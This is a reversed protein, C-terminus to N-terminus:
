ITNQTAIMNSLAAIQRLFALSTSRNRPSLKESAPQHNEPAKQAERNRLEAWCRAGGGTSRPSAVTTQALASVGHTWCMTLHPRVPPLVLGKIVTVYLSKPFHIIILIISLWQGVSDKGGAKMKESVSFSSLEFIFLVWKM